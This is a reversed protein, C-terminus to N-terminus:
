RRLVVSTSAAAHSVHHLFDPGVVQSMPMAPPLTLDMVMKVMVGLALMGLLIMLQEGRLLRSLRAGVQAGMAAGAALLLALMLDVKHDTGALILTASSCTFVAQFLTTGIALHAPMRLFYVLVPVLIFGGAVGMIATLVGVSLCLVFPFLVSHRVGSCPFDMQLPLESLLRRASVPKSRVNGVHGARLKRWSDRVIGGGVVALFLVYCLRIAVNANGEEQLLEVCEAGIGSGLMGGLLLIAGMRLDVDRLRFHAAVGSSTAAVMANASSAAAVTPHVGIMMLLPTLLFGGVGLLGAVLGIMGGIGMVLWINISIGAIPLLIRM